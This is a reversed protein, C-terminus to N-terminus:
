ECYLAARIVCDGGNRDHEQCGVWVAALGEVDAVAARGNEVQFSGLWCRGEEVHDSRRVVEVYGGEVAVLQEDSVSGHELNCAAKASRITTGEPCAIRKQCGDNSSRVRCETVVEHLASSGGAVSPGSAAVSALCGAAIFEYRRMM